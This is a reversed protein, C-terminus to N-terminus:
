KLNKMILDIEKIMRKHDNKMMELRKTNNDIMIRSDIGSDANHQEIIQTNIIDSNNTVNQLDVGGNYVEVATKFEGCLRKHNNKLLELLKSNNEVRIKLDTDHNMNCCIKRQETIQKNIMESELILESKKTVNQLNAGGIYVEVATKFEGCLRKQNNKLLDLLKSNNEVKIKLDTDSNMNCCIKHQESIAYNSSMSAIKSTDINCNNGDIQNKSTIDSHVVINNDKTPYQVPNSAIHRKNCNIVPKSVVNNNTCLKSQTENPISEYITMPEKDNISLEDGISLDCTFEINNVKDSDNVVDVDLNDNTENEYNECMSRLYEYTKQLDVIENHNQIKLEQIEIEDDCIESHQNMEKADLISNLNNCSKYLEIIMNDLEGMIKKIEIIQTVNLDEECEPLDDSSGESQLKDEVHSHNLKRFEDDMQDRLDVNKFFFGEIKEGNKIARQQKYNSFYHQFKGFYAAAEGKSYFTEVIKGEDNLMILSRRNAHQSNQKQTVWTLNTYHNDYTIGNRHNVEHNGPPSCCVWQEVTLRNLRVFKIVGKHHLCIVFYEDIVSPSIILGSNKNKVRGYNSILYYETNIDGCVKSNRIPKFIEDDKKLEFYHKRIEKKAQAYKSNEKLSMNLANEKFTAWRLNTVNNDSRDHNIHDICPKKELNEIFTIGILRHVSWHVSSGNCTLHVYVYGETTKNGCTPRLRNTFIQGGTSAYYRELGDIPIKRVLEDGQLNLIHKLNDPITVYGNEDIKVKTNILDCIKCTSNKSEVPISICVNCERCNSDIRKVNNKTHQLKAYENIKEKIDKPTIPCMSKWNEKNCWKCGGCATAYHFKPTIGFNKAHSICTLNVRTYQDVYNVNTYDYRKEGFLFKSKDIFYQTTCTSSNKRISKLCESCGGSEFSLHKASSIDFVNNHKLCKIKIDDGSGEYGGFYQFMGDYLLLAQVLFNRYMSDIYQQSRM